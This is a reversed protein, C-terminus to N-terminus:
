VGKLRKKITKTSSAKCQHGHINEHGVNALEEQSNIKASVRQWEQILTGKPFDQQALGHASRGQLRILWGLFMM